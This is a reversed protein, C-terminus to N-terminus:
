FLCKGKGLRLRLGQRAKNGITNDRVDLHELKSLYPSATLVQAGASGLRTQTLVLKRLGRVNPSAALAQVGEDTIPNESLDLGTLRTICSSLALSRAGAPGINNSGLKLITLQPLNRSTALVKVGADGICNSQLDLLSLRTLFPSGALDEVGSDGIPGGWFRIGSLRALHPCAALRSLPEPNVVFEVTQIPAVQFLFDAHELFTQLRVSIAVVFGRRFERYVVVDRWPELWEERHERLLQQERAELEARRALLRDEDPLRALEIQVRIFEGLPDGREELYDAYILRPTDDDPNAIIDRRFADDLTM